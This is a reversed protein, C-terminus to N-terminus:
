YSEESEEAEEPMLYELREVMNTFDGISKECVDFGQLRMQRQLKHSLVCEAIEKIKDDDM